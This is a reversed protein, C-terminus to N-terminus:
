SILFSDADRLDQTDFGESFQERINRVLSKADSTLGREVMVRALAVSSRLEFSKAGQKRALEVAARFCAEPSLTSGSKTHSAAEVEGTKALASASEGMLRYLEVKSAVEGHRESIKLGERAADRAALYSGSFNLAEALQRLAYTLNLEAHRSKQIGISAELEKIGEDFKGTHTLAWGHIAMAWVREQAIGHEDCIAIARTSHELTQDVERRLQHLVAAFLHAFALSRPDPSQAGLDLAIDRSKLATDPLGLIWLTRAQESHLFVGPDMRYMSHYLPRKDRDYHTAAKACHERAKDLEGVYMLSIGNAIHAGVLM